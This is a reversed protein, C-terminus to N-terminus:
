EQMKFIASSKSGNCFLEVGRNKMFVEPQALHNLEVPFSTDSTGCVIRVSSRVCCCATPAPFAENSQSSARLPLM